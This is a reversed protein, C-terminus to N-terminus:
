AANIGENTSSRLYDRLFYRSISTALHYALNEGVAMLLTSCIFNFGQNYCLDKNKQFIAKMIESLKKQMTGIESETYNYFPTRLSDRDIFKEIQSDDM